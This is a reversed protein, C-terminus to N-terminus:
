RGTLRQAVPGFADIVSAGVTVYSIGYAARRRELEDCIMEVSGVLVHPHTAVEGAAIGLSGGLREAADGAGAPDTVATFYAGIELELKDFRDGAGDRVWAVKEATRDGAGSAISAAGLVGPSNDFNLSVIDAKAGALTLVRRSGGGIMIPPGGPRVPVPVASFDRALVGAEDIKVEGGAFCARLLDM